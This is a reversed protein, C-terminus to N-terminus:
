EKIKSVELKDKQEIVAKLGNDFENLQSEIAKALRDMHQQPSTGDNMDGWIAKNAAFHTKFVTVNAQHAKEMPEFSQQMTELKEVLQQYDHKLQKIQQEKQQNEAFVREYDAELQEILQGLNGQKAQEADNEATIRQLTELLIAHQAASEVLQKTRNQEKKIETQLAESVSAITGGKTNWFDQILKSIDVLRNLIVIKQIRSLQNYDPGGLVLSFQQFLADVEVRM